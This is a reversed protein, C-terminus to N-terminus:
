VSGKGTATSDKQVSLVLRVEERTVGFQRAIEIDSMSGASMAQMLHNREMVSSVSTNAPEASARAQSIKLLTQFDEQGLDGKPQPAGPQNKKTTAVLQQMEEMVPALQKAQAERGKALATERVLQILKLTDELSVRNVSNM